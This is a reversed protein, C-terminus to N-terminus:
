ALFDFDGQHNITNLQSLNANELVLLDGGISITSTVVGNGDVTYTTHALLDALNNIGQAAFGHFELSDHSNNAATFVGANNFHFDKVTDNGFGAYFVFTDHATGTGGTLTDNGLGGTLRDAGAGGNMTDGGDGGDLVNAANNGTLTDGLASGTLNEIGSYTDGAADGTNGAPALLSAVVAAAATAYSATDIGAGGVLADAGAGGILTDNGGLGELRNIGADGVLINSGSSGIVREIGSLTDTGIQASTATLAALLVGNVTVAAADLNVNADATTASLNLTDTGAGGIYTDNGDGASAWITDNGIGGDILDNGALGRLVDNGGNGLLVDQYATGNITTSAATGNVYLGVAETAASTVTEQFGGADTYSFVVRV